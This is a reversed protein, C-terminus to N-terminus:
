HGSHGQHGAASRAKGSMSCEMKGDPGHKCCGKSHEAMKNHDMKSHDMKSHDMQGGQSHQAHPNTAAAQPVAPAAAGLAMATMMTFM